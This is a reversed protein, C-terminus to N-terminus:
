SFDPPIICPEERFYPLGNQIGMQIKLDLDAYYGEYQYDALANSNEILAKLDKAAKRGEPTNPGGIAPGSSGEYVELYLKQDPEPQTYLIYAYADEFNPTEYNSKGFLAQLRGYATAPDLELNVLKGGSAPIETLSTDKTFDILALQEQETQTTHIDLLIVGFPSERHCVELPQGDLAMKYIKESVALEAEEGNELLITLEFDDDEVDPDDAHSDVIIAPYHRAPGSLAANVCYHLGCAISLGVLGMFLGAQVRGRKPTRLVQVVILVATISLVRILWGWNTDAQQLVWGGWIDSTQWFYAAAILLCPILPVRIHMSSWEQTANGPKDGFFLVPAFVFCFLVFPIPALAGIKMVTTFKVGAFLYLPIPLIVGLAFLALVIWLGIRIGKIHGHWHTRYEERWQVAAEQQAQKEMTPTLSLSLDSSELWQAFRPIGQMNTEIAALKKGERNLLHISRNATLRVSAAEGPAFARERGWSSIYLLANDRFVLLARNRGALLMWVGLLFFLWGPLSVLATIGPEFPLTDAVIVGMLLLVFGVAWLIGGLGTVLKRERVAVVPTKREEPEPHRCLLLALGFGMLGLLMVASVGVGVPDLPERAEPIFILPLLLLAFATTIGGSLMCPWKSVPAPLDSAPELPKKPAYETQVAELEPPQELVHACHPCQPVYAMEWGRGNRCMPLPQGCAPCIWCRQFIKKRMWKLLLLALAPLLFILLFLWPSNAAILGIMLLTLCMATGILFQRGMRAAQRAATIYTENGQEMGAHQLDMLFLEILEYLDDFDEVDDSTFQDYLRGNVYLKAGGSDIQVRAHLRHLTLQGDSFALDWDPHQQYLRHYLNQLDAQQYM